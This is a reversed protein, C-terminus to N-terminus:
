AGMGLQASPASTTGHAAPLMARSPREHERGAPTQAAVRAKATM